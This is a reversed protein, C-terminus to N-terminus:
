IKQCVSTQQITGPGENASITFITNGSNVPLIIIRSGTSPITVYFSGSFPGDTIVISATNTTVNSQIPNGTNFNAVITETGSFTRNDFNVISVGNTYGDFTTFKPVVPAFNTNGMCGFRGSLSTTQAKSETIKYSFITLGCLVAMLLFFFKSRFNITIQSM